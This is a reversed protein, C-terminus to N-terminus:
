DAIEGRERTAAVAAGGAIVAAVGAAAIGAIPLNSGTSALSASGNQVSTGGGGQGQKVGGVDTSLEDAHAPTASLMQVVPVTWVLAAGVGVRKLAQRRTVGQSEEGSVESATM